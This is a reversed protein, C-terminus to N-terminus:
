LKIGSTLFHATTKPGGSFGVGTCWVIQIGLFNELYIVFLEDPKEDLLICVNANRPGIFYRYEYLQGVAERVAFGASLNNVLKAEFIIPLPSLMLLDIPHPNSISAGHRRFFDAADKVLKEHNRSRRQVGGRIFASYEEYSKPKFTVSQPSIGESAGQPRAVRALRVLEEEERAHLNVMDSLQSWREVFVLPMKALYGQAGRIQAPYPQLPAAIIEGRKRQEQMKQFWNLFWNQNEPERLEVLTLRRKAESYGYLPLWWGPRPKLDKESNRGYTGHPVWVISREELPGGAVSAGLFAQENTSYHFVIDGPWISRILSYSWYERNGKKTQPCKLDAGIDPRDTIEVWYKETTVQDWWYAV